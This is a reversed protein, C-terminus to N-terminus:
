IWPQWMGCIKGYIDGLYEDMETMNNNKYYAVQETVFIKEWPDESSGEWVGRGTEPDLDVALLFGIQPFFIANIEVEVGAPLNSSVHEAVKALLSELGDYVHKMNDLEEDNGVKVVTRRSEQSLEFDVVQSISRGINALHHGQFKEAIKKRIVLREAGLIEQFADTIKLAHYVFLRINAWISSAVGGNKGSGGSIGKRLHVM